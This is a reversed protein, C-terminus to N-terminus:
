YCDVAVSSDRVYGLKESAMFWQGGIDATSKAPITGSNMHGDLPFGDRDLWTYEVHCRLKEFTNNKITVKWAVEQVDRPSGIPKYGWDEITFPGHILSACGLALLM